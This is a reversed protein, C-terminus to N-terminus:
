KFDFFKDPFETLIQSTACNKINLDQVLDINLISLNKNKQIEYLKLHENVNNWLYRNCVGKKYLQQLEANTLIKDFVLINRMGGNFNYWDITKTNTNLFPCTAFYLPNFPTQPVAFSDVTTSKNTTSRSDTPLLCKTVISYNNETTAESYLVNINVRMEGSPVTTYRSNIYPERNIEGSLVTDHQFEYVFMAWQDLLNYKLDAFSSEFSLRGSESEFDKLFVGGPGVMLGSKNEQTSDENSYDSFMSNTVSLTNYTEPSIKAWIVLSVGGNVPFFDSLQNYFIKQLLNDRFKFGQGEGQKTADATGSTINFEPALFKHTTYYSNTDNNDVLGSAVNESLVPFNIGSISEIKESALIENYFPVLANKKDNLYLECLVHNKEIFLADSLTQTPPNSIKNEFTLNWIDTKCSLNKLAVTSANGNIGTSWIRIQKDQAPLSVGVKNYEIDTLLNLLENTQQVSEYFSFDPYTIDDIFYMNNGIIKLTGNFFNEFLLGVNSLDLAMNTLDIVQDNTGTKFSDIDCVKTKTNDYYDRPTLALKINETNETHDM